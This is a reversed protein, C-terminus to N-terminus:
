QTVPKASTVPTSAPVPNERERWSRIATLVVFVVVALCLALVILAARSGFSMM